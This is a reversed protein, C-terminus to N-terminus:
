RGVKTIIHRCKSLLKGSKRKKWSSEELTQKSSCSDRSRVRRPCAPIRDFGRYWIALWWESHKQRYTCCLCPPLLLLSRWSSRWGVFDMAAIEWHHHHQLPNYSLHCRSRIGLEVTGLDLPTQTVEASIRNPSRCYFIGEDCRLFLLLLFPVEKWWKEKEREVKAWRASMVVPLMLAAVVANNEEMWDTKGGGKKREENKAEYARMNTGQGRRKGGIQWSAIRTILSQEGM